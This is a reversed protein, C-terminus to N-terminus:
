GEAAPTSLDEVLVSFRSRQREGPALMSLGTGSRLANTPATMPEFCIFQAERPAFM